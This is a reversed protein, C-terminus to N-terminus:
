FWETIGNIDNLKFVWFLWYCFESCETVGNLLRETFVWCPIKVLSGVSVIPFHEMRARCPWTLNHVQFNELLIKICFPFTMSISKYFFPWLMVVLFGPGTLFSQFLVVLKFGVLIFHENSSGRAFQKQYGQVDVKIAM